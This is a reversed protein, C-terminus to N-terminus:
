EIEALLFRPLGFSQLTKRRVSEGILNEYVNAPMRSKYASTADRSAQELGAVGAPGLTRVAAAVLHDELELLAPEADFNRDQDVADAIELVRRRAESVAEAMAPDPPSAGVREELSRLAGSLGRRSPGESQLARRYRDVAATIQDECFKLSRIKQKRSFSHAHADFADTMGRLVIRKPIGKKWLKSLFVFDANSIFLPDGRREVFAREIERFYAIEPDDQDSPM